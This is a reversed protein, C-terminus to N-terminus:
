PLDLRREATATAISVALALSRRRSSAAQGSHSVARCIDRDVGHGRELCCGFCNIGDAEDSDAAKKFCEAAATFDRPTDRPTQFCWDLCAALAPSRDCCHECYLVATELDVSPFQEIANEAMCIVAFQRDPSCNGASLELYQIPGPIDRHSSHRSLLWVRSRHGDLIRVARWFSESAGKGDWLSVAFEFQAAAHQQDAARELFHSARTFDMPIGAGDRLAVGYNFQVASFRQDAAPRFYHAAGNFHM